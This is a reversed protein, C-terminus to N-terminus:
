QLLEAYLWLCYLLRTGARKTNPICRLPSQILDGSQVLKIFEAKTWSLEKLENHKYILKFM